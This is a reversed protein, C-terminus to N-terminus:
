THTATLRCLGRTAPEWTSTLGARALAAQLWSPSLRVKRYCSTRMQWVGGLREHILDHVVIHQTEEELFCTHMRDADSRVPIFRALGQPAQTYDRFTIGVRGGPALSQAMLQCLQEVQALTELHTITDGMCLILDAKCECHARFDLLDAEITRIGLGAGHQSLETLLAASTDIATVSCGQRALAIAHMGFGAGLDIAVQPEATLWPAVDKAGQALAAEIGGAMWLYIPALLQKYHETTSSPMPSLNRM